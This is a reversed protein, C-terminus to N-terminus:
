QLKKVILIWDTTTIYAMNTFSNVELLGASGCPIILCVTRVHLCGPLTEISEESVFPRLQPEGGRTTPLVVHRVAELEIVYGYGNVGM